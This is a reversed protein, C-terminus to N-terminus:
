SAARHRVDKIDGMLFILEDRMIERLWEQLLFTTSWEDFIPLVSNTHADTAWFDLGKM